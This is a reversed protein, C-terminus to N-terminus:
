GWIYICMYIYICMCIYIYIYIDMSIGSNSIGGHYAWRLDGPVTTKKAQIATVM